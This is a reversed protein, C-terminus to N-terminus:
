DTIEKNLNYTYVYKDLLFSESELVVGAGHRVVVIGKFFRYGKKETM